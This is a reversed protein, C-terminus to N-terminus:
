VMNFIYFYDNGYMRLMNIMISVGLVSECVVVILFVMIFFFDLSLLNLYLNLFFFINLMMFELIMLMVLLYKKYLCFILNMVLFSFYIVFFIFKM